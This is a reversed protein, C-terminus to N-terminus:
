TYYNEGPVKWVQVGKYPADELLRITKSMATQNYAANCQDPRPGTKGRASCTSLKVVSINSAINTTDNYMYVTM